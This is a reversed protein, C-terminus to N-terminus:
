ALSSRTGLLQQDFVYQGALGQVATQPGTVTLNGNVALTGDVAVGQQQHSLRVVMQMAVTVAGAWIRATTGTWQGMPDPDAM